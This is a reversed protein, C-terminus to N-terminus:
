YLPRNKLDPATKGAAELLPKAGAGILGIESSGQFFQFGEAMFGKIDAAGAPRGVPLGRKKAAAVITAIAAKVQPTQRGRDGYSYSLDNVGIFVVDIGPADLIADINEVARKEEIIIIVLANQDAFDAYGGPAPWRLSALGPGAGRRGLPPYKAAAVAQRALDPTSTFPFIVGMAGCDLARKATWLENVPVRILPMIATGQTALIMNRASELTIPSHEMEIWVFDFGLRAAQLVVDANPITVTMGIVPKGERLLKKLPNEWTAAAPTSAPPTTPQAAVLTSSALLVLAALRRKM